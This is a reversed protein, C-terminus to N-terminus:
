CYAGLELYKNLKEKSIPLPGECRPRTTFIKGPNLVMNPDFIAKVSRMLELHTRSAAHELFKRKSLGIGHEGTITGGLRLAASYIEHFALETRHIEDKDHENTLCTPHLNGDGAHGFNGFMLDHKSAIANIQELMPAVESRPVTADELITTPKVRALAAFAAKRATRLQTAEAASKAIRLQSARHRRCIESVQVLDQEVEGRRGDLEILLLAEITTPLGIRAYDEVCRITTNDLFELAAATIKSATIASVAEASDSARDFYALLTSSHEPKPILRLVIKTFVGLTGESGILLDKLNYGSVDKVNKGGIMMVEGSPLVFEFGMVYDKTVGYKLGRIGGANEAVNGGITCISSSGPDPPYLYGIKEMETQLQGTIIGPEVTVTLNREDIELIRDWHNTLLVICDEVPISGGSLGSGSGRPVVAFAESNALQLIKSIQEVSQPSVIAEPLQEYLPTADYSYVLKQEPSDFYHEGGVIDRLKKLTSTRIM